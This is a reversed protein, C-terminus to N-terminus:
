FCTLFHFKVVAFTFLCFYFRYLFTQLGVSIDFLLSTLGFNLIWKSTASHEKQHFDSGLGGLIAPPFIDV